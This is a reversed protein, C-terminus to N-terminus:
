TVSAFMSDQELLMNQNKKHKVNVITEIQTSFDYGEFVASKILQGVFTVCTYMILINRNQQLIKRNQQLIKTSNLIM